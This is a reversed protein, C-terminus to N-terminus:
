IKHDEIKIYKAWFSDYQNKHWAHCGFPLRNNNLDFLYSPDAEFAFKLAENVPAVNFTTIAEPIIQSWFADENITSSLYYKLTNTKGFFRSLIFRPSYGYYRYILHKNWYNFVSIRKDHKEMFDFASLFSSIKRLSFGGNGVAKLSSKTHSDGFDKFWPAGIYDYGKTCWDKLEDKFVYADLQYILMYEFEDFVGYFERSLLLRNYSSLGNFFSKEFTYVKYNINSLELKGTYYSIDLGAYTIIGYSYDKLVNLCQDFSIKETLDPNAKYIPILVITM